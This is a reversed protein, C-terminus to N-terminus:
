TENGYRHVYELVYLLALMAKTYLQIYMTHGIFLAIVKIVGLRPMRYM